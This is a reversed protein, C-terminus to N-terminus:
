LRQCTGDPVALMRTIEEMKAAIDALIMDPTPAPGVAATSSILSPDSTLLVEAAIKDWERIMAARTEAKFQDQLGDDGVLALTAPDLHWSSTPISITGDLPEDGLIPRRYPGAPVPITSGLLHFKFTGPDLSVTGPLDAFHLRSPLHTVKPDKSM